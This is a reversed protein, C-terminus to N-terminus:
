RKWPPLELVTQAEEIVPILMRVAGPLTPALPVHPNAVAIREYGMPDGYYKWALQDWREGEKTIHTLYM